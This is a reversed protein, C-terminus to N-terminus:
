HLANTTCVPQRGVSSPLCSLFPSFKLGPRGLRSQSFWSAMSSLEESPFTLLEVSDTAVTVLSSNTRTCDLAAPDGCPEPPLGLSLTLVMCPGVKVGSKFQAIYSICAGMACFSGVQLSSNLNLLCQLLDFVVDLVHKEEDSEM